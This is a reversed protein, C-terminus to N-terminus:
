KLNRQDEEFETNILLSGNANGVRGIDWGIDRVENENKCEDEGQQYSDGSLRREKLNEKTKGWNM